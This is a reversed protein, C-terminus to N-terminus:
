VTPEDFVSSVAIRRRVEQMGETQDTTSLISVPYNLKKEGPGIIVLLKDTGSLINHRERLIARRIDSWQLGYPAAWGSIVIGEDTIYLQQLHVVIGQVLWLLCVLLTIGDIVMTLTPHKEYQFYTVTSAGIAPSFGYLSSLVFSRLTPKFRNGGIHPRPPGPHGRVYKWLMGFATGQPLSLICLVIYLDRNGSYSAVNWVSFYFWSSLLALLRAHRYIGFGQSLLSLKDPAPIRPDSFFRGAVRTHLFRYHQEARYAYEVDSLKVRPSFTDTPILAVKTSRGALFGLLFPVISVIMSFPNFATMLVFTLVIASFQPVGARRIRFLKCICWSVLLGVALSIFVQGLEMPSQEYM